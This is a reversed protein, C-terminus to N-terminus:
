QVSLYSLEARTLYFLTKWFLFCTTAARSHKITHLFYTGSIVNELLQLYNDDIADYIVRIAPQSTQSLYSIATAIELGPLEKPAFLPARPYLM